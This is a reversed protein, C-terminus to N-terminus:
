LSFDLNVRMATGPVRLEYSPKANPYQLLPTRPMPDLVSRNEGFPMDVWCGSASTNMLRPTEGKNAANVWAALAVAPKRVMFNSIRLAAPMYDVPTLPEYWYCSTALLGTVILSCYM